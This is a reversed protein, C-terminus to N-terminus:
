WPPTRELLAQAAGLYAPDPRRAHERLCAETFKVAHPDRHVVAHAAILEDFAARLRVFEARLLEMVLERRDAFVKYPLGVACHAEAALARMTLAGAGDREVLRQAHEILSARLEETSDPTCGPPSM